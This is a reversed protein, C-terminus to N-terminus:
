QYAKLDPCEEIIERFFQTDGYEEVLIKAYTPDEDNGNHISAQPNEQCYKALYAAKAGMERNNDKANELAQKYFNMAM